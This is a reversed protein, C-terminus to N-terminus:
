QALDCVPFGFSLSCIMGPGCDQLVFQTTYAGDAEVYNCVAYQGEICTQNGYVCPLALDATPSTSCQGYLAQCGTGCYSIETGCYNYQSCCLGDSCSGYDPGCEGLVSTPMSVSVNMTASITPVPIPIFTSAPTESMTGLLNIAKTRSLTNTVTSTGLIGSSIATPSEAIATEMQVTSSETLLVSSVSFQKSLSYSHISFTTTPEITTGMNSTSSATDAATQTIAVAGSTSANDTATSSLYTSVVKSEVTSTSITASETLISSSIQSTTSQIETISSITTSITLLPIDTTTIGATTQISTVTTDLTSTASIVDTSTIMPTATAVPDLTTSFEVTSVAPTSTVISTYETITSSDATSTIGISTSTIACIDHPSVFPSFIDIGIINNCLQVKLPVAYGTCGGRPDCDVNAPTEAIADDINGSGDPAYCFPGGLTNQIIETTNYFTIPTQMCQPTPVATDPPCVLNTTGGVIELRSCSYIPTSSTGVYAVLQLTYAGNLNYPVTITTDYKAFGGCLNGSWWGVKLRSGAQVTQIFSDATFQECPPQTNGSRGNAM